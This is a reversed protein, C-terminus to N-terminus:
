SGELGRASGPGQEVWHPHRLERPFATSLKRATSSVERPRRCQATTWLTNTGRGRLRHNALGRGITMTQVGYTQRSLVTVM